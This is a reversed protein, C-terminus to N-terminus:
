PHGEPSQGRHPDAGAAPEAIDFDDAVSVKSDKAIQDIRRNMADDKLKETIQQRVKADSPDLQRIDEVKIIHFGFKTEVLGSIQGPKLSFAAQEFEPVMRGRSFYNLDGGSTKSGPDDSNDKALTAFDEGKHIRELITEAKKRAEDKSLPKKEDTKDEDDKEAPTPSTAILIHRARVETFDERHAKYYGDIDAETILKEDSRLDSEYASSLIGYKTLLLELKTARDKDVGEAKARGALVRLEAYARKLQERQPGAAQQQFDRNNQVFDDFAQPNSQNFKNIEDDTAKADPHTRRYETALIYDSRFRIQSDVTPREGYGAAEAATGVALTKKIDEIFAQKQSPNSALQRSQDPFKSLLLQMDSATLKISAPGSSSRQAFLAVGALAVVVLITAIVKGPLKM